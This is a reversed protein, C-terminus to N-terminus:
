QDSRSPSHANTQVPCHTNCLKVRRGIISAGVVVVVLRDWFPQVGTKWSVRFVISVMNSRRFRVYDNKGISEWAWHCIM